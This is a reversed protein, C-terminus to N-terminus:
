NTNTGGKIEEIEPRTSGNEASLGDLIFLGGAQVYKDTRVVQDTSSTCSVRKM